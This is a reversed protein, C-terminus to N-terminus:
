QIKAYEAKATQLIPIAPDADKWLSFFRLYDSRARASDGQLVSARAIGLNALAGLPNNVAVGRYAAFKQFEAAARDGQRLLLYAQGRLYIPQMLGGPGASSNALDYPSAAHLIAIAKSSNNRQIEVSARIGPLWYFRIMANKPFRNELDDALKLARGADGAQAFALAALVQVDRTPALALADAAQRQAQSANGFEAERLASELLWQAAIEKEDNRKASEVARWSLERAKELRGYFAETDSQLSFFADEIGPKGTAWDILRAMEDTDGQLFAVGYENSRVESSDLHLAMAQEYTRKADDLRNLAAYSGILNAYNVGDDPELATAKLSEALSQEYQGMEFYTSGLNIHANESRPYEQAWLEFVKLDNTLDGEAMDNYFATIRLKELESTRERLQYAKQIYESALGTEGLNSYSSALETYAMAFNPDLTVAQKLLPIAAAYGKESEAKIALSFIRLADLSSTTAQAIPTDFRQVSKRSEGLVRRVKAGAQDLADLVKEKSAATVQVQALTDGNQCNLASLGLVYQSGLSAISGTLVAASGTRVCIELGIKPTVLEDQSRGMLALTEKMRRETLINLFPSQELAVSVGQKLADDFMPDGTRNTFDSVVITDKDTLAQTRHSRIYVAGAVVAIIAVLSAVPVRWDVRSKAGDRIRGRLGDAVEDGNQFRDKPNRELCKLIVTEWQRKLDPVLARPPDPDEKIRRVAMSLPTSADFARAGTVMQYLVLGLSYVDSAPTLEKGEVQEPSMYAPTGLVEGTGTISIALTSERSSRLALGFDTVVVRVGGPLPVLHVNGPKFDRHVIGAAHAAGLGVAMQLAIPLADEEKLRSNRKLFDSLTEGELLEMAVFIVVDGKSRAQRYLEYIRCVNPHTVQRALHVARKFRELWKEDNLLESRISKLALRERLELDEAEYVEGMGGRALFRVVRFRSAVLEGEVFSQNQGPEASSPTLSFGPRSLFGGSELHHALLREVESQVASDQAEVAIFSAREAPSRELAREFLAKVTEWQQSTLDM